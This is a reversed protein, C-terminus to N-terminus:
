HNLLLATNYKVWISHGRDLAEEDVALPMDVVFSAEGRHADYFVPCKYHVKGPYEDESKLSIKKPRLAIPPMPCTMELIDPATLSRNEWDWGGNELTLGCVILGEDIAIRELPKPASFVSVQWEWDEM